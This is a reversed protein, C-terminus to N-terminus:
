RNPQRHLLDDTQICRFQGREQHISCVLGGTLTYGKGLSTKPMGPDTVDLNIANVVASGAAAAYVASRVWSFLM